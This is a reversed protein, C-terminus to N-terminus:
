ARPGRTHDEEAHAVSGLLAAADDQGPHRTPRGDGGISQGVCQAGDGAVGSTPQSALARAAETARGAVSERQQAPEGFVGEALFAAFGHATAGVAHILDLAEGPDSRVRRAPGHLLELVRDGAQALEPYRQKKLGAGFTIEFLAKHQAAFRVYAAAFAALQEVPDDEGDMAAAFFQHQQEYGRRAVAALLADKDAFHKYPAAVSVGARRCAEALTFGVTGREAVLELAAQELANQLDGHHQGSRRSM